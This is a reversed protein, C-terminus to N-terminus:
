CASIEIFFSKVKRTGKLFNKLMMPDFLDGQEGLFTSPVSIYQENIIIAKEGLTKGVHFLHLSKCTLFASPQTALYTNFTM